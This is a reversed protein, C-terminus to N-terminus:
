KLPEFGFICLKSADHDIEHELKLCQALCEAMRLGFNSGVPATPAVSSTKVTPKPVAARRSRRRCSHVLEPWVDEMLGRMPDSIANGMSITPLLLRM